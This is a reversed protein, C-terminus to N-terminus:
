EFLEWSQPLRELPTRGDYVVHSGDSFFSVSRGDGLEVVFMLFYAQEVNWSGKYVWTKSKM